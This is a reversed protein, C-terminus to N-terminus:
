DKKLNILEITKFIFYHLIEIIKYIIFILNPFTYVLYMKLKQTRLSQIFQRIIKSHQM